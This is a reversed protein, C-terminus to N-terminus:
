QEGAQREVGAHQVHVGRAEVRARGVLRAEEQGYLQLGACDNADHPWEGEYCPREPSMGNSRSVKAKSRASPEVPWPIGPPGLLRSPWRPIRRKTRIFLDHQTWEGLPRAMPEKTGHTCIRTTVCSTLETNLSCPAYM